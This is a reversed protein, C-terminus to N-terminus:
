TNILAAVVLADQLFHALICPVLSKRAVFLGAFLLGYIFTLILGSVGQYLHGLSFALSSLVAGVWYHGSLIRIRTIVYGRFTIEESFAAGLSLLIWFLRESLTHPLLYLINRQPVLGTRSIAAELLTILTWAGAFFILGSAVNPWNIDSKELGIGAVSTKTRRLVVIVLLLMILQILFSPLYIQSIRSTVQSADPSSRLNMLVSVLPYAVLFFALLFVQAHPIARQEGQELPEM